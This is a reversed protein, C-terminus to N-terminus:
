LIEDNWISHNWHHKFNWRSRIWHNSWSLNLQRKVTTEFPDKQFTQAL